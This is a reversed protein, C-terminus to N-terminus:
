ASSWSPVPLACVWVQLFGREYCYDVVGEPTLFDFEVVEVGRSRLHQQFRQRAGRQTMVITPAIAVDWLNAHEPLDLTRSMLVRVPSHGGEQRTTLRPNDRRVTNGGVIVADSRARQEFVLARSASSSVWASHGMATAIKGDLTMAYKLISLPRRLTARHLLAENAHLCNTLTAEIDETLVGDHTDSEGLISVAVGHQALAAIGKGRCCRFLTFHTTFHTLCKAYGPMCCTCVCCHDVSNFGQRLKFALQCDACHTNASEDLGCNYMMCCCVCAM